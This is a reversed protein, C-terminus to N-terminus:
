CRSFCKENNETSIIEIHTGVFSQTDDIKFVADVHYSTRINPCQPLFSNPILTRLGEEHSAPFLCNVKKYLMRTQQEEFMKQVSQCFDDHIHLTVSEIYQKKIQKDLYENQRELKKMKREFEYHDQTRHALIAAFPFLLIWSM